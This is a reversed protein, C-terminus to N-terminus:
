ASVSHHAADASAGQTLLHVRDRSIQIRECLPPALHEAPSLLTPAVPVFPGRWIIRRMNILSLVKKTILKKKRAAPFEM